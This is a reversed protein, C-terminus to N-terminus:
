MTKRTLVGEQGMMLQQIVDLSTYGSFPAALPADHCSAVSAEDVAASRGCASQQCKSPPARLEVVLLREVICEELKLTEIRQLRQLICCLMLPLSQPSKEPIM